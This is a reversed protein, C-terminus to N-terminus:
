KQIDEDLLSGNETKNKNVTSIKGTRWIGANHSHESVGFIFECFKTHVKELIDVNDYGWVECGHVLFPEVCSDFLKLM